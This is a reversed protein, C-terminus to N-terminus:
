VDGGFRSRLWVDLSQLQFRRPEPLQSFPRIHPAGGSDKFAAFAPSATFEVTYSTGPAYGTPLTVVSGSVVYGTAPVVASTATDYTTVAGTAAVVVNQPYPLATLGGVELIANYRTTADIEVFVDFISAGSWAPSTSPITLSPDANVVTGIKTDTQTGPQTNSAFRSVYVFLAQFPGVPEDWYVGRGFCTTCRPDPSGPQQGGFVCPCTHSKLWLFREGYAEIISDFRQNPIIFPSAAPLYPGYVSPTPPISVVDDM